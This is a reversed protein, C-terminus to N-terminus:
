QDPNRRRSTSNRHTGHPRGLHLIRGCHLADLLCLSRCEAKASQLRPVRASRCAFIGAAYRNRVPRRTLRRVRGPRRTRGLLSHIRRQFIAFDAKASQLRPVRTSHCAFTGAAYRNRVRRRMLRRVRGPRRTRGLLSHIRRQFIAFDAKASQLRPVQTSRCAFADAAYRNRVRLRMLHRMHGPRRTWSPPSQAKGAAFKNAGAPPVACARSRNAM